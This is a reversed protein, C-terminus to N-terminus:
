TLTLLSYLNLLSSYIRVKHNTLNIRQSARSIRPQQREDIVSEEDSFDEREHPM